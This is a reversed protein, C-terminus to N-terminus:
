SVGESIAVSIKGVEFIAGDCSANYPAFLTGVSQIQPPGPNVIRDFKPM